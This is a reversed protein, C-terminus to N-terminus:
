VKNASMAIMCVGILIVFIGAIQMITYPERDIFIAIITGWLFTTAYIPYVVSLRGGLKFSFVFLVMVVCFLIMGSFLPWNKYLPMQGLRLGGIKYLYQGVAGLVAAILNLLIPVTQSSNQM